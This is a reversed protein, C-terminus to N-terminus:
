LSFLPVLLHYGGNEYSIELVPFSVDPFSFDSVTQLPHRPYGGPFQRIVLNIATCKGSSTLAWPVQRFTTM